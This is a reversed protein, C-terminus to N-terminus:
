EVQWHLDAALKGTTACLRPQVFRANMDVSHKCGRLKDVFRRRSMSFHEREAAFAAFRQSFFRAISTIAAHHARRSANHRYGVESVARHDRRLERCCHTPTAFIAGTVALAIEILRQCCLGRGASDCASIHRLNKKSM